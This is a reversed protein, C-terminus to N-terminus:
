AGVARTWRLRFLGSRRGAAGGVVLLLTLVGTDAFTPRRRPRDGAGPQDPGRRHGDRSGVTAGDAQIDRCRRAQGALYEGASAPAGARCAIAVPVRPSGIRRGRAPRRRRSRPVRRSRPPRDAGRSPMGPPALSTAGGM